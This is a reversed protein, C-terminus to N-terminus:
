YQRWNAWWHEENKIWRGILAVAQSDDYLRSHHLSGFPKDSYRPVHVVKWWGAPTTEASASIFPSTAILEWGFAVSLLSALFAVPVMGVSIMFPGWFLLFMTWAGIALKTGTASIGTAAFIIGLIVFTAALWAKSRWSYSKRPFLRFPLFGVVFMVDIVKELLWNTFYTWALSHSAEDASTRMILVHEPKLQPLVCKEQIDRSWRQWRSIFSELAIHLFGPLFVLALLSMLLAYVYRRTEPLDGLKAFIYSPMGTVLAVAGLGSVIFFLGPLYVHRWTVQIFPTSLCVIRDIREALSQERLAYMLVSGGHSHGIVVQIANPHMAIREYLFPRLENSAKDRESVSNRGSWAFRYFSFSADPDGISLDIRLQSALTGDDKTWKADKAFTGHILTICYETPM